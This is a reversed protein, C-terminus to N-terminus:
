FAYVKLFLQDNIKEFDTDGKKTELQAYFILLLM